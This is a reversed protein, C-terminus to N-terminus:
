LQMLWQIEVLGQYLEEGVATLTRAEILRFFM